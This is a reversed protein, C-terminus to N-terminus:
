VARLIGMIQRALNEIDDRREHVVCQVAVGFIAGFVAVATVEPELDKGLGASRRMMEIAARMQALTLEVVQRGKYAFRDDVSAGWRYIVGAIDRNDRFFTFIMELSAEMAERASERDDIGKSFLPYISAWSELYRNLWTDLIEEYLKEKTEFYRYFTSPSSGARAVIERVTVEGYDKERFIEIAANLLANHKEDTLTRVM